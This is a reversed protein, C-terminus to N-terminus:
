KSASDPNQPPSSPGPLMRTLRSVLEAHQDALNHQEHPDNALDFLRVEETDWEHVRLFQTTDIGHFRRILKWEQHVLWRYQLTDDPDGPTMNHISHTVGTI